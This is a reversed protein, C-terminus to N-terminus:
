DHYLGRKPRLGFRVFDDHSLGSDADPDGEPERLMAGSAIADDYHPRGRPPTSQPDAKREPVATLRLVSFAAAAAAVTAFAAALPALAGTLRRAAESFSTMQKALRAMDRRAKRVQRGARRREPLM